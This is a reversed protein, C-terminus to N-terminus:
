QGQLPEAHRRLSHSFKLRGQGIALDDLLTASVSSSRKLKALTVSIVEAFHRELYVKQAFQEADSAQCPILSVWGCPSRECRLKGTQRGYGRKSEIEFDELHNVRAVATILRPRLRKSFPGTTCNPGHDDISM